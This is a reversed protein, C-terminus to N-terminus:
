AGVLVADDQFVVGGDARLGSGTRGSRAAAFARIQTTAPSRAARRDLRLVQRAQRDPRSSARRLTKRWCRSTGCTMAGCMTTASTGAASLATRARRRDISGTAVAYSTGGLVIFLCVDLRRQCLNLRPRLKALM